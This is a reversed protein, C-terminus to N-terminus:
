AGAERAIMASINQYDLANPVRKGNIIVTPTANVGLQLGLM